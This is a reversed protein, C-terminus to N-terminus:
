AEGTYTSLMVNKSRDDPPKALEKLHEISLLISQLISPHDRLIGPLELSMSVRPMGTELSIGIAVVPIHNTGVLADVM